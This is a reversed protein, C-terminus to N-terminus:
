PLTKIEYFEMIDLMKFLSKKSTAIGVRIFIGMAGTPLLKAKKSYTISPIWLKGGQQVDALLQADNSGWESLGNKNQLECFSPSTHTIVTDISQESM